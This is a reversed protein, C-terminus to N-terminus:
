ATKPFTEEEFQQEGAEQPAETYSHLWGKKSKLSRHAFVAAALAGATDIILDKMTDALAARGILGTGDELMSKQMNLGLLTDGAFEYVEWCVGITVAFFVAVVAILMPSILGSCKRRRLFTVALIAGLMSEMMGSALHLLDDWFPLAYYLSFMEGLVTGCLVFAYYFVCLSDPLRIRTAAKLIRPVHLAAVALVCQILSLTSSSGGSKIASIPLWSNGTVVVSLIYIVSVGAILLSGLYAAREARSTRKDETLNAAAAYETM